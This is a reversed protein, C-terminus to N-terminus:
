NIHKEWAVEDNRATIEGNAARERIAIDATAALEKRRDHRKTIAGTEMSTGVESRPRM